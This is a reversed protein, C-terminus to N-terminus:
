AFSRVNKQKKEGPRGETPQLLPQFSEAHVQSHLKGQTWLQLLQVPGEPLYVPSSLTSQTCMRFHRFSYLLPLCAAGLRCTETHAPSFFLKEQQTRGGAARLEGALAPKQFFWQSSTRGAKKRPSHTRHRAQVSITQPLGPEQLYSRTFVDKEKRMGCLPPSALSGQSEREKYAKHNCFAKCAGSLVYAETM